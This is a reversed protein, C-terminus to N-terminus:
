SQKQRIESKFWKWKRLLTSGLNYFCSWDTLENM